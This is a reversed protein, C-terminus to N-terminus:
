HTNVLYAWLLLDEEDALLHTGTVCWKQFRTVAKNLLISPYPLLHADSAWRAPLSHRRRSRDKGKKVDCM